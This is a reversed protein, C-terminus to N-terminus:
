EPREWHGNRELAKAFKRDARVEALPRRSIETGFQRWVYDDGEIRGTVRGEM